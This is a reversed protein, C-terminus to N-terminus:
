DHGSMKLMADELSKVIYVQAGIFQAHFKKELPKLKGYESKIELLVLNDGHKVLLDPFGDGYRSCDWVEYGLQRLGDRIEAHASDTKAAWRTM